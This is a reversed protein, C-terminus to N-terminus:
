HTRMVTTLDWIIDSRNKSSRSVNYNCHIARPMHLFVGVVGSCGVFCVVYCHSPCAFSVIAVRRNNSNNPMFLLTIDRYLQFCLLICIEANIYQTANTQASMHLRRITQIRSWQRRCNKEEARSQKESTNLEGLWGFINGRDIQRVLALLQALVCRGCSQWGRRVWLCLRKSIM